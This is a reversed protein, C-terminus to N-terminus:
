YGVTFRRRRYAGRELEDVLAIAYDETSIRSKGDEGVLLDDGGIRYGGTREGPSFLASPCLMTWDIDPEAQLAELVKVGASAEARAAEPFSPSDLLRGNGAIRLSGAGGVVVLRKGPLGRALSLLDSPMYRLFRVASVVVERDDLSLALEAPQALGGVIHSTAGLKELKEGTPGIAMVDHDRSLAEAVIRSGATGAAGIVAIKM